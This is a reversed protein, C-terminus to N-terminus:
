TNSANKSLITFIISIALVQYSNIVCFTTAIMSDKIYFSLWDTLAVQLSTICVLLFSIVCSKLLRGFNVSNTSHKIAIVYFIKCFFLLNVSLTLFKIINYAKLYDEAINRKIFLPYLLGVPLSGFWIVLSLRLSSWKELFFVQVVKDYINKTYIFMWCILAADSQVYFTILTTKVPSNNAVHETDASLYEVITNMLRAVSLQTLIKQDIKRVEKRYYFLSLQTIICVVSLSIGTFWTAVVGETLHENVTSENSMKGVHTGLAVICRM